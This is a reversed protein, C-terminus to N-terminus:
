CQKEASYTVAAGRCKLGFTKAAGLDAQLEIDFLEGAVDKLLNEGPRITTDKWTHTKEYLSKIEEVPLRCLRLGEAFSRLTLDCPFTLQQNFPMDPYRGGRM